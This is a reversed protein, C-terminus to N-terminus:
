LLSRATAIATGLDQLHQNTESWAARYEELATSKPKMQSMATFTGDYFNSAQTLAEPNIPRANVSKTHTQITENYVSLQSRLASVPTQQAAAPAKNSAATPLIMMKKNEVKQQAHAETKNPAAKSITTTTKSATTSAATPTSARATVTTSTVPTSASPTAAGTSPTTTTTKSATTSAATSTSARATVTTSTVPTSASPTAAGTSPTTTTTKSATASAATSTSAQATVTASTVPTSASPTSQPQSSASTATSTTTQAQTTTSPATTSASTPKPATLLGDDYRSNFKDIYYSAGALAIYDMAGLQNDRRLQEHCLTNLSTTAKTFQDNYSMSFADIKAATQQMTVIDQAADAIWKNFVEEKGFQKVQTLRDSRLPLQTTSRATNITSSLENLFPLISDFTKRQAYAQTQKRLEENSPPSKTLTELTTNLNQLETVRAGADRLTDPAKQMVRIAAPLFLKHPASAINSTSPTATSTASTPTPTATIPILTVTATSM